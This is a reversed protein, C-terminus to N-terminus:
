NIITVKDWIGGMSVAFYIQAFNKAQSDNLFYEYEIKNFNLSLSIKGKSYYISVIDGNELKSVLSRKSLYGEEGVFGNTLFSWNGKGFNVGLYSKNENLIKSTLGVAILKSINEIKINIEFSDSSMIKNITTTRPLNIDNVLTFTGNDFKLGKEIKLLKEVGIDENEFEFDSYNSFIKNNRFGSKNRQKKTEENEMLQQQSKNDTVGKFNEKKIEMAKSEKKNLVYFAPETLNSETRKVGEKEKIIEKKLSNKYLEPNHLKMRQELEEKSITINTMLAEFNLVKKKDAILHNENEDNSIKSLLYAFQGYMLSSLKVINEDVNALRDDLMLYNKCLTTELYEIKHSLNEISNILREEIIDLRSLNCNHGILKKRKIKISCKECFVQMEPCELLHNRKNILKLNLGCFSCEVIQDECEIAHLKMEKRPLIKKCFNCQEKISVCEAEHSEKDGIKIMKKCLCQYKAYKCQDLHNKVNEYSLNTVTCPKNPCIIHFNKLFMKYFNGGETMTTRAKCTTCINNATVICESCYNKNCKNCLFPSFPIEGCINCLFDTIISYDDLVISNKNLSKSM